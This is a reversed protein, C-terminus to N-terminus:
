DTDNDEPFALNRYKLVWRPGVKAARQYHENHSWYKEAFREQLERAEGSVPKGDLKDFMDMCLDVVDDADQEKWAFKAELYAKPGPRGTIRAAFGAAQAEAYTVIRNDKKSVILRPSVLHYEREYTYSYATYNAVAIPREFLEAVKDIGSGSSLFFRCKASLYIDMFDTRYKTAYDIIKPNGANPLPTDTIGGLRVAFGNRATIYEAAKLYKEVRINKYDVSRWHDEYQPRWDRFYAPDRAHFCVFWDNEGIGMEALFQRGQREEEETFSLTPETENMILIERKRGYAMPEWFRTRSLIPRWAFLLRTGWRSEFIPLHRKWMNFLYRNAPDSGFFFYATRAPAGYYQQKRLFLDTHTALAGIRQTYMLGLRIRYFPEIAYLAPLVVVVCVTRALLRFIPGFIRKLMVASPREGVILAQSMLANHM